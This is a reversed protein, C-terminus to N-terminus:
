GKFILWIVNWCVLVVNCQVRHITDLNLISQKQEQMQQIRINAEGTVFHQWTESIKLTGIWVIVVHLWICWKKANNWVLEKNRWTYTQIWHFRKPIFGHHLKQLKEWYIKWVPHMYSTLITTGNQERSKRSWEKFFFNVNRTQMETQVVKKYGYHQCKEKIILNNQLFQLHWYPTSGCM